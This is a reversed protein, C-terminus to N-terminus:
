FEHWADENDIIIRQNARRNPRPEFTAAKFNRDGIAAFGSKFSEITRREIQHDDVNEHRVHAADPWTKTSCRVGAGSKRLIASSSPAVRQRRLGKVGLVSSVTMSWHRGSM